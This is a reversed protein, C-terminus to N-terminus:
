GGLLAAHVAEWASESVAALLGHGDEDPGYPTGDLRRVVGGIERVLLTGPAHDWPLTRWFMVFERNGDLLDRYERGACHQSPVIEVGPVAARARIRDRMPKPFYKGPVAGRLVLPSGDRPDVRVGDVYAGAGTEAYALTDGMPEYVWAGATRGARVLAIMMAFPERGAAFNATGDVPDVLWVPAEGKLRDLIADDAAVAEEGVVVSGPLLELLGATLLEEARRDAVTVVEGPSKEFVEGAGLHRFAPLVASTAAERLLAAVGETLEDV